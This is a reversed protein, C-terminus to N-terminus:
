GRITNNLSEKAKSGYGGTGRLDKIATPKKVTLPSFMPPSAPQHHQEISDSSHGYAEAQQQIKDMMAKNKSGM